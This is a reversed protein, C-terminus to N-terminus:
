CTNSDFITTYIIYKINKVIRCYKLKIPYSFLSKLSFVSSHGQFRYLEILLVVTCLKVNITDSFIGIYFHRVLGSMQGFLFM